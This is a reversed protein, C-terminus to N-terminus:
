TSATRNEKKHWQPRVACRIGDETDFFCPAMGFAEKVEASCPVEEVGGDAVARAPM